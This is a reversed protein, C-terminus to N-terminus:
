DGEPSLATHTCRNFPKGSYAPAPQNPLGTPLLVRGDLTCKRVTHDGDDTCWLTDDPGFQLGHARKFLGKGWSTLFKGDRDFVVMPHEVRNFAYVRDQRDVAVAAAERLSWGAPLVGWGPVPEYSWAGEGLTTAM